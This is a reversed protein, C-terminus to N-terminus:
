HSSLAEAPHANAAARGLLYPETRHHVPAVASWLARAPAREYRVFTTMVVRAPEVRVVKRASLLASQVALVLADPTESDIKWGLVHDGSARPGLRLGLGYRWGFVVFSRLAAPAREFAARAWQQPSRGDAPARPVAFASAYDSRGLPDITEAVAVRHARM